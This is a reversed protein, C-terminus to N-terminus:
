SAFVSRIAVGVAEQFDIQRTQCYIVGRGSTPLSGLHTRKLERSVM